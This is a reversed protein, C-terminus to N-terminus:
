SVDAGRFKLYGLAVPVTLWFGMVASALPVGLWWPEAPQAQQPGPQFSEFLDTLETILEVFAGTPSVMDLAAQANRSLGTGFLESLVFDVLGPVSIGAFGWLVGFLFYFGIVAAMARSRSGTAGSVGVAVSVHVVAFLLTLAFVTAVPAGGLSGGGLVALGLLVVFAVVVALAVVLARSLWKGVVLEWRRVPLGLQFTISGREREGAIALYAAILAIVPIVLGGFQTIFLLTIDLLEEGETQGLIQGAMILGTFLVYAATVGWLMKSRRVDLFDTRAVSLVRSM